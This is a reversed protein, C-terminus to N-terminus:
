VGRSPPTTSDAIDTRKQPRKKPDSTRNDTTTANSKTQTPQKKKRNQFFWFVGQKTKTKNNQIQRRDEASASIKGAWASKRRGGAVGM